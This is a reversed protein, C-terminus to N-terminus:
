GCRFTRKPKASSSPMPTKIFPRSARLIREVPWWSSATGCAGQSHRESDGEQQVTMGGVCIVDAWRIDRDKLRGTNLDALRFKWNQPLIAALTLLGLPLGMTKEGRIECVSAWNWFSKKPFEPSILLCAFALM